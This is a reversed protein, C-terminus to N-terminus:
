PENPGAELGRGPIEPVVPRASASAAGNRGTEPKAGAGCLKLAGNKGQATSITEPGAESSNERLARGRRQSKNKTQWLESEDRQKADDGLTFCPSAMVRGFKQSNKKEWSGDSCNQRAASRHRVGALEGVEQCFYGLIMVASRTKEALMVIPGGKQVSQNRQAHQASIWAPGNERGPRNTPPRGNMKKGRKKTGSHRHAEHGLNRRPKATPAFKEGQKPLFGSPGKPFPRDWLEWIWDADIIRGTQQASTQQAAPMCARLGALDWSASRNSYNFKRM